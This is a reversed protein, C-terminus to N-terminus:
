VPTKPSMDRVIGEKSSVAIVAKFGWLHEESACFVGNKDFGYRNIIESETDVEAQLDFIVEYMLSLFSRFCIKITLNQNDTM